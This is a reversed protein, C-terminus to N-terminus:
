GLNSQPLSYCLSYIPFRQFFEEPCVYYTCVSVVNKGNRCFSFRVSPSTTILARELRWGIKAIREREAKSTTLCNRKKKERILM